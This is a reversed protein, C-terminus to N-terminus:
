TPTPPFTVAPYNSRPVAASTSDADTRTGEFSAAPEHRRLRYSPLVCTPQSPFTVRAHAIVIATHATDPAVANVDAARPAVGVPGVGCDSVCANGSVELVGAGVVGAPM